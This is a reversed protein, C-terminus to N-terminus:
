AYIIKFDVRVAGHECILAILEDHSLCIFSEYKSGDEFDYIWIMTGKATYSTM